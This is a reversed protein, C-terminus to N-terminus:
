LPGGGGTEEFEFIGMPGNWLITKAREIVPAYAALTKPGIDVAAMDRPIKLALVAQPM